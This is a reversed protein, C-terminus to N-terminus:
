PLGPLIQTDQRDSIITLCGSFCSLSIVFCQIWWGSILFAMMSPQLVGCIALHAVLAGQEEDGAKKLIPEHMVPNWVLSALHRVTIQM